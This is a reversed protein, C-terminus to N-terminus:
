TKSIDCEEMIKAQAATLLEPNVSCIYVSMQCFM